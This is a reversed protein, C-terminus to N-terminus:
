CMLLMLLIFKCLFDRSTPRARDHDNLTFVPRELLEPKMSFNRISVTTDWTISARKPRFLMIATARMEGYVDSQSFAVLESKKAKKTKRIATSKAWPKVPARLLLRRALSLDRSSTLYHALIKTTLTMNPYCRFIFGGIVCNWQIDSREQLTCQRLLAIVIICYIKYYDIIACRMLM